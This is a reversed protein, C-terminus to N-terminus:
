RPLSDWARVKLLADLFLNTSAVPDMRAAASGWGPRQQFLGLSDHDSGVGQHPYAAGDPDNPNSLVLLNSETIAVTLAVLQAHDGGRSAATAAITRANVAQAGSLGAVPGSTVCLPLPDGAPAVTVAAALGLVSGALLLLIGTIGVVARTMTMGPRSRGHPVM